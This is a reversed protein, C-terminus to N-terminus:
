NHPTVEIADSPEGWGATTFAAVRVSYGTGNTLRAISLNSAPSFRKWSGGNISYGYNIVSSGGNNLPAEFEIGISGDHSYAHFGQPKSAKFIPTKFYFPKSVAGPGAGNIARLQMSYLTGNRLGKIVQRNSTSSPDVDSWNEGDFTFQYGKIATGGTRKPTFMSITVQANGTTAGSVLPESAPNGLGVTVPLTDSPTGAGVFNVASVRVDYSTGNSLGSITYSLTSSSAAHSFTSWASGATTKYEVLYDTIASGGNDAPAVFTVTGSGDGATFSSVTPAGPVKAPTVSASDSVVGTGQANTASVRVDYSTGNSM